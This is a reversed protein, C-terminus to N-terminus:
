ADEDPRTAAFAGIAALAAFGVGLLAAARIERAYRRRYFEVVLRGILEYVTSM